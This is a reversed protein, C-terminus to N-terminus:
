HPVAGAFPRARAGPRGRGELVDVVTDVPISSSSIRKHAPGAPALEATTLRHLLFQPAIHPYPRDVNGGVHSPSASQYSAPQAESDHRGPPATRRPITGLPPRGVPHHSSSQAYHPFQRHPSLSLVDAYDCMIAAPGLTTDDPLSSHPHPPIQVPPDTDRVAM